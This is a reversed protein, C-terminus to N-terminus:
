DDDELLWKFINLLSYISILILCCIIKSLHKRKHIEMKRRIQRPQPGLPFDTGVEIKWETHRFIDFELSLILFALHSYATKTKESTKRWVHLNACFSQLIGGLLHSSYLMEVYLFSCYYLVIAILVSFM